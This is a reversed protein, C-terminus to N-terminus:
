STASRRACDRIPSRRSRAASSARSISRTSIIVSSHPADRPAAGGDRLSRGCRRLVASALRSQLVRARSLASRCAACGNSGRDVVQPMARLALPHTDLLRATFELASEIRDVTSGRGAHTAHEVMLRRLPLMDSWGPLANYGTYVVGGPALHDRVFAAIRARNEPSIWSLVGHLGIFDFRPLDDRQAFEEFTAEALVSDSGAATDLSRAFRVHDPLLDNGWWRPHSAAAHVALSVGQGFGLECAVGIRPPELGARLFALRTALPNLAAHCGFTYGTDTVYGASRDSM